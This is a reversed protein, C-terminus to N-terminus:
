RIEVGLSTFYKRFLPNDNEKPLILYNKSPPFYGITKTLHKVKILNLDDSLLAFRRHFAHSINQQTYVSHFAYDFSSFRNHVSDVFDKSKFFYWSNTPRKASPSAPQYCCIEPTIGQHQKRTPIRQIYWAHGNYNTYGLPLSSIDLDVDSSHIRRQIKDGELFSICLDLSDGEPVECHVLRNQYRVITNHLRRYLQEYDIYRLPETLEHSINTPFLPFDM